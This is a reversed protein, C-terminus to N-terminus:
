QHDAKSAGHTSTLPGMSSNSSGLEHSSPAGLCNIVHPRRGRIRTTRQFSTPPISPALVRRPFLSTTAHTTEFLQSLVVPAPRTPIPVLPASITTPLPTPTNYTSSVQLTIKAQTPIRLDITFEIEFNGGQPANMSPTHPTAVTRAPSLLVDLHDELYEAIFLYLAPLVLPHHTHSKRLTFM